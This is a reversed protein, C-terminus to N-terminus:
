NTAAISAAGAPSTSATSATAFSVLQGATSATTDITFVQLDPTGGSCVVAVYTHSNDEVLDVPNTGTSYPSNPLATLAGNASLAFGDIRGNTRTAVYVYSGSASVIVAVPGLDTQVPSTSLETLGGNAAIKLVRLGSTGNVVSGTETVFLYSGGPDIALGYDANNSNKTHLIQSLSLSGSSANFGLIDVGGTGLSIYVIQNNPTIAIRAPAGVDLTVPDGQSTLAGTSTNISFLYASGQTGAVGQAAILWNGTSDIKLASPLIGTVLANGSNLISLTGNSNISYGYIGGAISGIYLFTNKPTVALANPQSAGFDYPSGSLANLKSNAISFAGISFPNTGTNAIYLYDGSGTNGGGGTEKPFFKGGCSSLLLLGALPLFILHRVVLKM